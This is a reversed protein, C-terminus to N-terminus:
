RCFPCSNKYRRRWTCAPCLPFIECKLGMYAFLVDMTWLAFVWSFPDVSYAIFDSFPFLNKMGLSWVYTGRNSQNQSRCVCWTCCYAKPIPFVSISLLTYSVSSSTFINLIKFQIRSVRPRSIQFSGFFFLYYFQSLTM